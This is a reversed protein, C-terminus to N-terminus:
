IISLYKTGVEFSVHHTEMAFILRSISHLYYDSNLRTFICLRYICQPPLICLYYVNFRTNCIIVTISQLTVTNYLKSQHFSVLLARNTGM